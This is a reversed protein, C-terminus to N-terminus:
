DMSVGGDVTLVHGTVYAGDESLLFAVAGAIEVPNAFRGMPISRLAADRLDDPIADTLPSVVFGPAVANVTIGRSGIERALARTFGVLGAKAAAYNTQGANGILGAVSAINVIRGKRRRIMERVARRSCVFASRLNTQMVDDWQDDSMRVLLTDRTIGANNVLADLGGLAQQARDVVEEAGEVTSLDAHITVVERGDARIKTALDEAMAANANYHLALDAGEEALRLAFAGGLAGSAGTILVREGALRLDKVM